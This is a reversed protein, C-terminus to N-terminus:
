SDADDFKKLERIGQNHVIRMVEILTVVQAVHHEDPDSLPSGPLVKFVNTFIVGDGLRVIVPLTHREVVAEVCKRYHHPDPPSTNAM